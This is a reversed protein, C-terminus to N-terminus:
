GLVAYRIVAGTARADIYKYVSILNHRIFRMYFLWRARFFKMSRLRPLIFLDIADSLLGGLFGAFGFLM